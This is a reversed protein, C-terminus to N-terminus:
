WEYHCNWCVWINNQKDTNTSGCKPCPKGKEDSTGTKKITESAMARSTKRNLAM